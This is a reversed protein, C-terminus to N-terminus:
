VFNQLLEIEFTAGTFCSPGSRPVRVAWPVSWRTIGAGRRAGDWPVGADAGGYTHAHRPGGIQRRHRRRVRAARAGYYPTADGGDGATMWPRRSGGIFANGRGEARWGLWGGGHGGSSMALEERGHEDGALWELLKMLYQHLELARKNGLV